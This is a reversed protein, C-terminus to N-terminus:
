VMRDSRNLTTQQPRLREYIRGYVKFARESRSQKRLYHLASKGIGLKQAESQSITLIRKRLEKEDTRQVNPSPESFDINCSRGVLYRALM